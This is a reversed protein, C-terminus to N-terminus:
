LHPFISKKYYFHFPPMGIKEYKATYIQLDIEHTLYMKLLGHFKTYQHLFQLPQRSHSTIEMRRNVLFPKELLVNEIGTPSPFFNPPIYSPIQQLLAHALSFASLNQAVTVITGKTMRQLLETKSLISVLPNNSAGM